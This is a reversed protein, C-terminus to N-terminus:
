RFTFPSISWDVWRGYSKSSRHKFWSFSQSIIDDAIMMPSSIVRNFVKSNRVNWIHWLLCYFIITVMLRKKPCNGWSVGFNIFEDMNLFQRLPLNCWKFIWERTEDVVKGKVLLHDVTEQVDGCLVCLDYHITVGRRMLEVVVHIKGQLAHWVFCKVKLPIIRSWETIMGNHPIGTADICRRMMNVTYMGDSNLNFKLGLSVPTLRINNLISCIEM